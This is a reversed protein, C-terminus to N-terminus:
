GPADERAIIQEEIEKWEKNGQAVQKRQEILRTVRKALLIDQLDQYKRGLKFFAWGCLILSAVWAFGM